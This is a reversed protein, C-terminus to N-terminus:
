PATSEQWRAVLSHLEAATLIRYKEEIIGLANRTGLAPYHEIVEGLEILHAM